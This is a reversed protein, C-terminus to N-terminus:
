SSLRARRNSERRADHYSALWSPFLFAGRGERSRPSCGSEIPQEAGLLHLAGEAAPGGVVLHEEDDDMLGVLQPELLDQPLEVGHELGKSARRNRFFLEPLRDQSQPADDLDLADHNLLDVNELGHGREVEEIEPVVQHRGRSELASLKAQDLVLQAHPAPVAQLEVASGYM